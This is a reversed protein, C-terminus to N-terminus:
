QRLGHAGPASKAGFCPVSRCRKLHRSVHWVFLHCWRVALGRSEKPPLSVVDSLKLSVSRRSMNRAKPRAWPTFMKRSLLTLLCTVTVSLLTRTYSAIANRAWSFPRVTVNSPPIKRMMGGGGGGAGSSGGGLTGATANALPRRETIKFSSSRSFVM